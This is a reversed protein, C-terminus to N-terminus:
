PGGPPQPEGPAYAAVSFSATGGENVPVNSARWTGDTGVTAKIGNVWVSYSADSVTGTLNVTPQWLQTGDVDDMTITLNYKTLSINTTSANGAADTAVLHFSNTGDALPLNDVWFKGNREVQGNFTNTVGNADVMQVVVQATPDDLRGRWTFSDGAIAGGDPPWDSSIVPPTTDQSYDVVYSYCNTSVNGAWDTAALTVINTGPALPVDYCQIFNTTLCQVAPDYVQHTIAGHDGFFLGSANSVSYYVSSLPESSYGQLQFFPQSLITGAPNTIVIVPPATDRTLPLQVWNMCNNTRGRLGFWFNQQGDSTGLYVSVNSNYPVWNALAFNANNTLVAM